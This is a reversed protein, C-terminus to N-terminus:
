KVTFINYMGMLAHPVGTTPESVWCMATYTGAELQLTFWQTTGASQDIANFVPTLDSETIGGAVPTGTMSAKLGAGLQDLTLGDPAKELSLFHPMKGDNVLQVVNMGATLAGDTLDITYDHFTITANAKPAPLDKALDGTVTFGVPMTSLGPGSAFWNGATLDIVADGAQNPAASVGGPLTTTYYWPPPGSNEGGGSPTASAMAMLDDMTVGDPLMAFFVGPPTGNQLMGAPELHLAYRGAELTEPLGTVGKESVSLDLSKLGLSAFPSDGAAATANQAFVSRDAAMLPIMSMSSVITLAGAAKALHRRSLRREM